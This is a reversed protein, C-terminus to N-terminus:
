RHRESPHSMAHAPDQASTSRELKRDPQGKGKSLLRTTSSSKTMNQMAVVKEKEVRSMAIGVM